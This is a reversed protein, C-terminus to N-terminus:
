ASICQFMPYSFRDNIFSYSVDADALTHQAKGFKAESDSLFPTMHAVDMVNM